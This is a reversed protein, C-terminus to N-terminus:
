FGMVCLPCFCSSHTFEGSFGLVKSMPVPSYFGPPSGWLTGCSLVRSRSCFPSRSLFCCCSSTRHRHTISSLLFAHSLSFHFTFIAPVRHSLAFFFSLSFLRSFFFSPYTNPFLSAKIPFPLLNGYVSRNGVHLTDSCLPTKNYYEKEGVVLFWFGCVV